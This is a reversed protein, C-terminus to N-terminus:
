QPTQEDSIGFPDIGYMRYLNEIWDRVGDISSKIETQTIPRQGDEIKDTALEEAVTEAPITYRIGHDTIEYIM